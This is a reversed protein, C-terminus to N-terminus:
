LFASLRFYEEKKLYEIHQMIIEWMKKVLGNHVKSGISYDSKYIIKDFSKAAMYIRDTNGNKPMKINILLFNYMCFPFISKIARAIESYQRVAHTIINKHKVEFIVLPILIKGSILSKPFRKFFNTEPLIYNSDKDKLYVVID